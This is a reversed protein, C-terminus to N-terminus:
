IQYNQKNAKIKFKDLRQKVEIIVQNQVEELLTKRLTVVKKSLEIGKSNNRYIATGVKKIKKAVGWAIQEAEEDDVSFKTKAWNILPAIPPMKGPGRGTDLFELYFIGISRVFTSGYDVYLSKAAERTNSISKSDLAKVISENFKEVEKIIVKQLETM